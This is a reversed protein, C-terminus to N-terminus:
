RPVRREFRTTGDNPDFGASTWFAAGDDNGADVMADLRVAGLGVALREAEDLLRRAIGRRRWAGDVALRYLHLRWGDWGAILSAVIAGDHEVVFCTSTPHALLRGVSEEDDSVSRGFAARSWLELLGVADRPAAARPPAPEDM